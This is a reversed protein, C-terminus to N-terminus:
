EAVPYHVSKANDSCLFVVSISFQKDSSDYGVTQPTAKSDYLEYSLSCPMKAAKDNYLHGKDERKHPLPLANFFVSQSRSANDSTPPTQKELIKENSRFVDELSSVTQNVEELSDSGYLSSFVVQCILPKPAWERSQYTCDKSVSAQEPPFSTKVSDAITQVDEAVQEFRARDASIAKDNEHRWIAIGACVVIILLTIAGLIRFIKKQYFPTQLPPKPM